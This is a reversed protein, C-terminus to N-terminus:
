SPFLVSTRYNLICVITRVLLVRLPIPPLTITLFIQLLTRPLALFLNKRLTKTFNNIDLHFGARTNNIKLIRDVLTRVLGLKYSFPVFSYYNTLLTTYTKGLPEKPLQSKLIVITATWRPM